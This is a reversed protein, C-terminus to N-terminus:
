GLQHHLFCKKENDYLRIFEHLTREIFGSRDM